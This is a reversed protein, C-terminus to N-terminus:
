KREDTLIGQLSRIWADCQAGARVLNGSDDARLEADADPESGSSPAQGAESVRAECGQWQRRLKLAGSRLDAVTRDHKRNAENYADQFQQARAAQAEARQQYRDRQAEAAKRADDAAKANDKAQQVETARVKADGAAVGDGYAKYAIAAMSALYFALVVLLRWHKLCWTLFLSM